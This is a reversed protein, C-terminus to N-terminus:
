NHIKWDEALMDTQSALWGVVFHDDATKMVISPLCLEGELHSVCSLDAATEIDVNHALFLFMGKGNWGERAVKFGQKMLEVAQGFNMGGDFCNYAKEFVDKPSWSIYGDEYQVKYGPKGDKEQPEAMIVKTGIYQKM